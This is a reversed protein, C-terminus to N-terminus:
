LVPPVPCGLADAIVRLLEAEELSLQQDAAICASFADLMLKRARPSALGVRDLAADLAPIRCVSKPLMEVKGQLLGRGSAQISALGADFAAGPNQPSGFNALTSLILIFETQVASLPSRSERAAARKELRDVLRKDIFRHLAFEFLSVQQDMRILTTVLRRFDARQRDSLLQLAPLALCAVPLRTEPTLRDVVWLVRQLEALVPREAARQIEAVQLNRTESGPAAILLGYLVAVAGLPDHIDTALLPDLQDILRQAHQIYVDQPEGSLDLWRAADGASLNAGEARPQLSSSPRADSDANRGSNGPMGPSAPMGPNKTILGGALGVAVAPGTAPAGTRRTAPEVAFQGRGTTSTEALVRTSEFQGNFNPEIRRIRDVLPPHTAFMSAALANGFFMHSSEEAHPSQLVAKRPWGGIKKLVGSIGDPNRTYQVASADALFERQRSLAAKIWQAFFMGIYGIALLAIGLIVLAAGGDNKSNRSRHRPGSAAYMLVRGIVALILIGHLWGILRINIRMDGHLIHSFEHAIVGQLEDRSLTSLAGRTVGVVANQPTTGAAFANIGEEDDMLYVPPVATGCALAMEEVVNLLRREAVDRTNPQVLRGGLSAAVKDGSGGLELSKYLSGGFILILTAPIVLVLLEPQWAVSLPNEGHQLRQAGLLLATALYVSICIGAVALVFLLILWASKRRAIEQHEFFDV